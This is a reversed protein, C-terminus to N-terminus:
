RTKRALFRNRNPSLPGGQVSSKNYAKMVKADVQSNRPLIARTIIHASAVTNTANLTYSQLLPHDSLKPKDGRTSHVVVAKPTALIFPNTTEEAAAGHDERYEYLKQAAAEGLLQFPKIITSTWGSMDALEDGDKYALVFDLYGNVAHESETTTAMIEDKILDRAKLEISEEEHTYARFVVSTAGITVTSTGYDLGAAGCWTLQIDGMLDAPIAFEKGDKAREIAFPIELRVVGSQAGTAIDAQERYGHSQLMKITALRLARGPLNRRQGAADNVILNSVINPVNEGLLNATAPTWAYTIEATIRDIVNRRGTPGKAPVFPKCIAQGGASFTFSQSPYNNKM